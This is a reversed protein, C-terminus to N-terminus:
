FKQDARLIESKKSVHKLWHFIPAVNTCSSKCWGNSIPLIDAWFSQIMKPPKRTLVFIPTRPHKHVYSLLISLYWGLLLVSNLSPSHQQFRRLPSCRILSNARHKCSIYEAKSTRLYKKIKSMLEFVCRNADDINCMMENRKRKKEDKKEIKFLYFITFYTSCVNVCQQRAM